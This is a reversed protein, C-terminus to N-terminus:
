NHRPHHHLCALLATVLRHLPSAVSHRPAGLGRSLDQEAFVIFVVIYTFFKPLVEGTGLVQLFSAPEIASLVYVVRIGCMWLAMLMVYPVVASM